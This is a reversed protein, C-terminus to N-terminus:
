KEEECDVVLYSLWGVRELKKGYPFLLEEWQKISNLRRIGLCRGYERGQFFCWSWFAFSWQITLVDNNKNCLRLYAM